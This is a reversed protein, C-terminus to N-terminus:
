LSSAAGKELEVGGGVTGSCFSSAAGKELAVGGGVTGSCLSSAAGKELAVGGGVTGSCLSSATETKFALEGIATLSCISNVSEVKFTMLSGTIVLSGSSTDGHAMSPSWASSTLLPKFAGFVMYETKLIDMSIKSGVTFSQTM